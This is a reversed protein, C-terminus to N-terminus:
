KKYNKKSRSLNDYIGNFLIYAIDQIELHDNTGEYNGSNYSYSYVSDGNVLSYNENKIKYVSYTNKNTNLRFQLYWHAPIKNSNNADVDNNVSAYISLVDDDSAPPRFMLAALLLLAANPLATTLRLIPFLLLVFDEIAELIFTWPVLFTFLSVLLFACCNSSIVELKISSSLKNADM